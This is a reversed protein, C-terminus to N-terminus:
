NKPKENAAQSDIYSTRKRIGNLKTTLGETITKERDLEKLYGENQNTLMENNATLENLQQTQLAADAQERAAKAERDAPTDGKTHIFSAQEMM